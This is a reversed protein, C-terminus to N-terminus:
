LLERIWTRFYLDRGKRLPTVQVESIMMNEKNSWFVSSNKIVRVPTDKVDLCITFSDYSKVGYEQQEGYM